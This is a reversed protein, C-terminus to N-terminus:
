LHQIVRGDFTVESGCTCIYSDEIDPVAYNTGYVPCKFKHHGGCLYDYGNKNCQRLIPDAKLIAKGASLIIQIKKYVEPRKQLKGMKGDNLIVESFTEAFDEDPDSWAYISVYEKRDYEFSPNDHCYAILDNWPDKFRKRKGFVDRYNKLPNPSKRRCWYSQFVHGLEHALLEEPSNPESGPLSSYNKKIKSWGFTQDIMESMKITSLPKTFDTIQYWEPWTRYLFPALLGLSQAKRLVNMLTEDTKKM